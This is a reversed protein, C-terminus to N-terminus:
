GPAAQRRDRAVECRDAKGVAGARAHPGRARDDLVERLAALRRVADVGAEAVEGLNRNRGVRERLQLHIEEAAMRGADAIRQRDGDHARRHRQPCVHERLSEGADPELRQFQEDREDIVPNM